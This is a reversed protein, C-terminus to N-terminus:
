KVNVIKEFLGKGWLSEFQPPVVATAKRFADIDPEVVTMGLKKIAEPGEADITLKDNLAKAEACADLLIKQNAAGLEQFKKENIFIILPTMIHRTVTMYKQVENLKNAAITPVPNEQGDVVNTSLSLYLEGLDIPTPEAGWSRAMAMMVPSVPTRLKFGKLDAPSKIPKNSTINRSGYYYFTLARLGRTTLLENFMEKGIDGGLVKNIHAVDRWIFPCEAIGIQKSFESISSPGVLVMDQTGMVTGEAQARDTGLQGGPFLNIKVKGNTKATVLEILKRNAVNTPHDPAYSNGYKLEFTKDAAPAGGASSGAAFLTGAIFLCLLVLVIKKVM